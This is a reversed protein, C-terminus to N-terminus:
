NHSLSPYSSSIHPLRCILNRDSREPKGLAYPLDTETTSFIPPASSKSKPRSSSRQDIHHLNPHSVPDFPSRPQFQPQPPLRQRYGPSDDEFDHTPEDRLCVRTAPVSPSRQHLPVSPPFPRRATAREQKAAAFASATVSKRTSSDPPPMSVPISAQKPRCNSSPRPVSPDHTNSWRDRAVDPSASQVGTILKAAINSLKLKAASSSESPAPSSFHGASFLKNSSAHSSPPSLLSSLKNPSSPSPSM